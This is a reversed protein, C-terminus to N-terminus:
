RGFSFKLGIRVQNEYVHTTKTPAYLFSYEAYFSTNRKDNLYCQMGLLAGATASTESATGGNGNPSLATRAGGQLGFYPTAQEYPLLYYRGQLLYSLHGAHFGSNGATNDGNATATFAARLEVSDAIFRGVGLTGSVDYTDVGTKTTKDVNGIYNFGGEINVSWPLPAKENEEGAYTLCTTVVVAAVVM